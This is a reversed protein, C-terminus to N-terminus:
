PGVFQVIAVQHGTGTPQCDLEDTTVRVVPSIRNGDGDIAYLNWDNAFAAPRLVFETRGSPQGQEKDGTLASDAWWQGTASEIRFRAGDILQGQPNRAWIIVQTLGCNPLWSLGGPQWALGPTPAPVQATDETTTTEATPQQGRTWQVWAVQHGSGGPQCDATDTTVQFPQGIRNGAGDIPWLNWTMAMPEARLVFDTTGPPYSYSGTPFSDAGWGGDATEIRFREGNLFAGGADRLYLIIRTLGCNPGWQTLTASYAPPPPTDAGVPRLWVSPLAIVMALILCGLLRRM